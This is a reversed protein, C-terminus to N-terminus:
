AMTIKEWTTGGDINQYIGDTTAADNRLYLTGRTATHSPAGASNQIFSNGSLKIDGMSTAENDITAGSLDIGIDFGVNTGADQIRIAADITDAVTGENRIRLAYETTPKTAAQRYMRIDLGINLDVAPYNLKNEVMLGYVTSTTSSAGTRIYATFKGSVINTITGSPNGVTVECDVGTMKNGAVAVTANTRLRVMLATDELDGVLTQYEDERTMSVFLGRTKEGASIGQIDHDVTFLYEYGDTYRNRSVVTDKKFTIATGHLQIGFRNAWGIFSM